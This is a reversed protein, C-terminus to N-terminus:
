HAAQYIYVKWQTSHSHENQLVVTGLNGMPLEEEPHRCTMRARASCQSRSSRVAQVTPPSPIWIVCLGWM